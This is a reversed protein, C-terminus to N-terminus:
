SFAEEFMDRYNRKCPLILNSKMMTMMMNLIFSHMPSAYEIGESKESNVAMINSFVCFLLIISSSIRQCAINEM